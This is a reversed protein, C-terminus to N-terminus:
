GGARGRPAERVARKVPLVFCGGVGFGPVGVHWVTEGARAQVKVSGFGAESRSFRRRGRDGRQRGASPSSLGRRLGDRTGYAVTGRHLQWCDGSCRRRALSAAVRGVILPGDTFPDSLNCSTWRRLGWRLARRLRRAPRGERWGLAAMVEEMLDAPLERKPVGRAFLLALLAADQEFGM